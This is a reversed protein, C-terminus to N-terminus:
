EEHELEQMCCLHLPISMRLISPMKPLSQVDRLSQQFPLCILHEANAHERCKACVKYMEEAPIESIAYLSPARLM